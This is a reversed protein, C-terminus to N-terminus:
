TTHDLWEDSEWESGCTRCKYVNKRFVKLIFLGACREITSCCVGGYEGTEVRVNIADRTEGCVPCVDCGIIAQMKRELREKEEYDPVKTNKTIRM